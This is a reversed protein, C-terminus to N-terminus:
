GATTALAALQAGKGACDYLSGQGSAPLDADTVATCVQQVASMISTATGGDAPGATTGGAAGPLQGGDTSGGPVEAGMTGGPLQGPSGGPLKGDTSGSPLQGGPVAGPMQGPFGSPPQGDPFGGPVQGDTTSGPLQGDTTGGPSVGPVPRFGGPGGGSASVFRVEGSAVKEAFGAIDLAPDQGQFGGLAMVSLGHEAILSSAGMASTLVLDWTEGTNHARLWEALETDADFAASGFTSSAAGGRPGAQPLTANLTPNAAESVSWAAPLVLLGALALGVAALALGARRRSVALAVLAVVGGAVALGVAVPRVWGYFGAARGSVVLQGGLTLAVAAVGGLLWWRNMRAAAVLTAAGIGVLAGIAPAMAATYYSHFIGDAKSFVVTHVALWTGWLAVSAVLPLRRRYWWLGLLTSAGALPLLWAIQGGVADNYMRSWGPSGGFVGGPGAMGGAPGTPGGATGGAPAPLGSPVRGGGGGPGGQGEGNVRGLGNYGFVLDAVSNDASGGVYPRADAPWLDVSLVYAGSVGLAVLGLVSAMGLRAFWRGRVGLLAALCLAPLVIFAALMKTMFALGVFGGALAVWLWARRGAAGFARVTAWAAAALLLVLFPEPLNLRNTAVSIPSVALVLAAVSAAVVGFQRRVTAWLVAVSAAGALASPLLLTWSSYGFLRAALAGFWLALPPKDVTIFGGPDFSAFLFSRWSTTMSRVAAAYYTNGYGQGSLAWVNLALAVALIPLLWLWDRCSPGAPAPVEPSPEPQPEAPEVPPDVREAPSPPAFTM